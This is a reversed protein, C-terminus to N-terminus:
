KVLSMDVTSVEAEYTLFDKDRIYLTYTYSEPWFQYQLCIRFIKFLREGELPMLLFLFIVYVSNTPQLILHEHM